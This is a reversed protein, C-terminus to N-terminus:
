RSVSYGLAPMKVAYREALNRALRNEELWGVVGIRHDLAEVDGPGVVRFVVTKADVLVPTVAEVGTLGTLFERVRTYGRGGGIGQVAVMVRGHGVGVAAYRRAYVAASHGVASAALSAPPEGRDHWRSLVNGDEILRWDATQGDIQGTLVHETGYGRSVMMLRAIHGNRIDAPKVPGSTAAAAPPFRLPVGRREAAAKMANVIEAPGAQTVLEGNALLWVMTVPRSSGWVPLGAELMAAELASGDFVAHLKLGATTNGSNAHDTKSDPAQDQQDTITGRSASVNSQRYGYRQVLSQAQDLIAEAEAFQAVRPDGSVRVMVEALARRLADARAGASKNAVPVTAAYLDEVTVAM